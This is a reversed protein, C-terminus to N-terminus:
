MVRSRIPCRLWYVILAWRGIGSGVARLLM